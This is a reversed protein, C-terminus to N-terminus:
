EGDAHAGLAILTAKQAETLGTVGTINMGEYLKAPKLTKLCKGTSVDWLRVTEDACGSALIQNDPSFAVSWIEDTHGTLTRLCSGTSVDWLKVTRDYGGSALLGQYSSNRSLLSFAIACVQNTHGTFTKLCEGTSVDWLRVTNDGSASALTKGDPSFAVAYVTNSHGTCIKLCQGTCFDWLRVTKDLSGSALTQGDCSLDVSFVGNSHGTLIKLCEGTSVDWCRLTKDLSGSVLSKGDPSLAVSFVWNSHGHWTSLCEGTSADWCRVSSDFSGSALTKGNCSFTISFVQATHGRWTNLCEGTNVDWLRVSHDGSGSAVTKGQPSFAVSYVVNSYGTLTKLCSGTKVDWLKVMQDISGSALIQGDSSLAVSLVWNTHGTCIRLCIGTQVEWLRISFDFGSSALTKGDPSFAVSFVGNSHGTFIKLCCGTSVDWLRVTCDNSSSALTRGDRSFAVSFVEKTHETFTRLERSTSIDWVKVTQDHSSSALTKGDCSFAVSYVLANHGTYTKLCNGTAVDWLKVTHDLSGSVLTKGDPSFAVSYVGSSHGTYTRLCRGTNIDWLKMSSDLSSSALTQGDPSFAVSFVQNTHEILTHLRQSTRMRWLHIKCDGSSTALLKSDPSLAVSMVSVLLESFVSKALDSHAFNVNHLNVRQLNAQWVTLHSFDYDSLDVQLQRLVNIINGSVYGTQQPSKERLLSLIQVLCKELNEPFGLLAIARDIAPKLILRIQTERVYDKAQAKVLAHRSFLFVKQSAIEECIREILVSIIYEMVVPQQTFAEAIKEILSRRQLSVLAQLLESTSIPSVFDEQLEELLVPERNIALWYMIEQEIDSLRQFQRELLDRIDDFIFSGQKLFELFRSISSDFFDTVGSAVIKLALPNGSYRSIVSTWEDESGTFSGKASFIKRGQVEPLGTVQLCRVPQTEGELAALGQPKERSTLILSSNHHTEGVCKLLEGYGEYGERYHGTRSAFSHRLSDGAQLVSEANDLVLLCRSSRLYNILRLIRGDKNTPLNIEQQNSLFQILEALIEEVPPANRLSRWIVFEFGSQLQQALKAALATKGIGGMGLLVVLRCNDQVIWQELTTLEESRDYFVSVDPAEGWDVHRNAILLSSEVDVSQSLVRDGLDSISRWDLALKGCIEVFTAYDVTKGTLFRSLTSLAIGLEEAFARQSPFGNRKLALKAIQICDSRVKLSRSM